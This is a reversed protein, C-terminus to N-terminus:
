GGVGGGGLETWKFLANTHARTHACVCARLWDGGCYQHPFEESHQKGCDVIAHQPPRVQKSFPTSPFSDYVIHHLVASCIQIIPCHVILDDCPQPCLDGLATTYCLM